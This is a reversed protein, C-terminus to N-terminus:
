VLIFFSDAEIQILKIKRRQINFFNYRYLLYLDDIIDLNKIKREYRMENKIKSNERIMAKLIEKFDKLLNIEIMM